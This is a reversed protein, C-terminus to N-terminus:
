DDMYTKWEKIKILSMTMWVKSLSINRKKSYQGKRSSARLCPLHARRVQLNIHKCSSLAHDSALLLM